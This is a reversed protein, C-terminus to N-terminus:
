SQPHENQCYRDQDKIVDDLDIITRVTRNSNKPKAKNILPASKRTLPAEAKALFNLTDSNTIPSVMTAKPVEAGSNTTLTTDLVLPKFSTTYPLTIPLLMNLRNRIKPTEATINGITTCRDVM